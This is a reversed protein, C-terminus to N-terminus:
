LLRFALQVKQVGLQQLEDRVQGFREAQEAKQRTRHNEEKLEGLRRELQERRQREETLKKELSNMDQESGNRLYSDVAQQIGSEIRAATERMSASSESLEDNEMGTREVFHAGREPM